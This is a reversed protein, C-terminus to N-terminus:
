RRHRDRRLRCVSITRQAFPNLEPKTLFEKRHQVASIVGGAVTGEIAVSISFALLAGLGFRIRFLRYIPVYTIRDFCLLGVIVIFMGIPALLALAGAALEGLISYAFVGLFVAHLSPLSWDWRDPRATALLALTFIGTRLRLSFGGQHDLASASPAPAQPPSLNGM